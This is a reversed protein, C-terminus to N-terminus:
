RVRSLNDLAQVCEAGFAAFMVMFQIDGGDFDFRFPPLTIAEAANWLEITWAAKAWPVLAIGNRHEIFRHVWPKSQSYPPNMWVRGYWPMALGDDAKTYFREAPVHTAWPPSAVDLDFTLGLADFIWRPTLLDDSTREQQESVFLPLTM